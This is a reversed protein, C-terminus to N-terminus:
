SRSSAAWEVARQCSMAALMRGTAHTRRTRVRGCSRAIEVELRDEELGMRGYSMVKSMVKGPNVIAGVKTGDM